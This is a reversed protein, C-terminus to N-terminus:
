LNRLIVFKKPCLKMTWAIKSDPEEFMCRHICRCVDDDNKHGNKMCPNTLTSNEGWYGGNKQQGM